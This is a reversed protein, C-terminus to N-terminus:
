ELWRPCNSKIRGVFEKMFADSTGGGLKAYFISFMISAVVDPPVNLCMTFIQEEIISVDESTFNTTLTVLKKCKNRENIVKCKSRDKCSTCPYTTRKGM